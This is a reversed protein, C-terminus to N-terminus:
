AAWPAAAILTNVSSGTYVALVTDFDSLVTSFNVAGTFPAQWRYWVSAGGASGAHNPEGAEKTARLNFGAVKGSSGNLVQANAFNDNGLTKCVGSASANSIDVIEADSMAADTIIFEDLQGRFHYDNTNAVNGPGANGIYKAGSSTGSYPTWNPQSVLAGNKYISVQGNQKDFICTYHEWVGITPLPATAQVEGGTNPSGPAPRAIAKIGQGSGQGPEDIVVAAFGDNSSGMDTNDWIYQRKTLTLGPQAVTRAGGWNLWFSITQQQWDQYNLGSAGTTVKVDGNAGSLDLADAVKGGTIFAAGGRLTAASIHNTLDAANTGSTEDFPLWLNLNATPPACSRCLGASGANYISQVEAASLERSYLHVEDIVGGFINEFQNIGKVVGLYLPHSSDHIQTVTGGSVVTDQDPVAVGNVYIKMAQTQPNFTAAVHTFVGAQLVDFKTDLFRGDNTQNPRSQFVAFTLKGGGNTTFNYSLEQQNQQDQSAYDYKAVITQAHNALQDLKIWADISLAGTISNSGSDPIEIHAGFGDLKFAQGVKGPAYTPLNSGNDFAGNFGGQLNVTNNDGPFWATLNAPPPTCVYTPKCTGASSANYTNLIEQPTLARRFVQVEDILGKFFAEDATTACFVNTNTGGIFAFSCFDNVPGLAANTASNQQAGDVYIRVTTGQRVGALHHWAGDNLSTTGTATAGNGNGDRAVFGAVNNQIFLSSVSNGNYGDSYVEASNNAGNLKVWAEYTGDSMGMGFNGNSPIQVYDDVGDFSFAQGVKGQAFTVGNLLTGNYSNQIDNANGDGPFWAFLSSPPAVCSTQAKVTRQWVVVASLCLAVVLALQFRALAKM